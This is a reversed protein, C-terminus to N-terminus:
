DDVDVEKLLWAQSLKYLAKGEDNTGAEELVGEDVLCLLALELEADSLQDTPMNCYPHKLCARTDEAEAM